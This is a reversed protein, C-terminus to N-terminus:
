GMFRYSVFRHTGAPIAALKRNVREQVSRELNKDPHASFQGHVWGMVINLAMLLAPYSNEIQKCPNKRNDRPLVHISRPGPEGLIGTSGGKLFM